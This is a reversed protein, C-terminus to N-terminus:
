PVAVTGSGTLGMLTDLELDAAEVAFGAHFEAWSDAYGERVAVFVQVGAELGKEIAGRLGKGEAESRGYRNIILVDPADPGPTLSAELASALDTLAQWDLHCGRSEPGRDESIRVLEGNALNRLHMDRCNCDGTLDSGRVQLHGAVRQGRARLADAFRGLAADVAEGATFRLAVLPPAKTSMRNM